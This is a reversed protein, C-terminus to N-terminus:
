ASRVVPERGQVDLPPLLSELGSLTNAVSGQQALIFERAREGIAHADAANELWGRITALLERRDRVQIAANRSLLKEVTDKFNWVAPGFCVPVGYGAPEIMSQGGRHCELSGGTFGLDALGWAAALEGLTDLITISAAHSRPSDVRSRRVYDINTAAVMEVVAEFREPHRPVLFLRLSPHAQRLQEFVALVIEEEPAVTSGALWVTDTSQFGLLRRLQQTKLNLRDTPAGEYKMSGTVTVRTGRTVLDDIRAAYLENQAGWWQIAALPKRFLFLFRGYGRHSRESLRANVVAVPTGRRKAELLLNPWLELETLVLLCPRVGNFIGKVAWTFDLPAYFTPIEPYKSRAVDMGANTTISLIIQLDPRRSRMLELLPRLLLVEGVSVAHFWVVPKESVLAPPIGRAKGWLGIRYKGTTAAKYMWYPLTAFLLLLYVGNLLYPM